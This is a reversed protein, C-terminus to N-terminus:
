ELATKTKEPEEVVILDSNKEFTKPGIGPVHMLDEPTKFAGWTERYEIINAAYKPGIGNLQVLEEATATNINIKQSDGATVYNSGVLGILVAIALVLFLKRNLM